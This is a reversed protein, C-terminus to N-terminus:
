WELVETEGGERQFENGDYSYVGCIGCGLMGV